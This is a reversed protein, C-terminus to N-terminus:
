RKILSGVHDDSVIHSVVQIQHLAHEAIQICLCGLDHDFRADDLGSCVVTLHDTDL